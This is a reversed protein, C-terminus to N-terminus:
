MGRCRVVRYSDPARPTEDPVEEDTTDIFEVFVVAAAAAAAAVATRQQPLM